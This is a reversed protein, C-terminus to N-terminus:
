GQLALLAERVKVMALTDMGCYDLLDRRLEAKRVPDGSAILELFALSAMQGQRIALAGYDLAPALVPLVRKISFSGHLDPHYYHSRVVDLLDVLRELLALLPEALEPLQAALERIVSGEFGSYVCISGEDGLTALMSLAFAERPDQGDEPLFESHTCAGERDEHHCSWQFPVRQFPRMGAYRPIAPAYTEFDLYHIPHSFAALAPALGESVWARDAQVCDRVRRQLTSLPLDRPLDLISTLDAALLAQRLTRTLRPLDSVPHEPEPHAGACHALFPCVQPETCHKGTAVAPPTPKALVGYLHDVLAEIEASLDAAAATRDHCRFLEALDLTRGNFVYETNLTLVGTQQVQLGSGRLVWAQVALDLVHEPRCAGAAKVEVLNWRGDGNWELIDARVQVGQFQFAAEFLGYAGAKILAETDAVAPGMRVSGHGILNGGPVRERALEGVEAGLRLMAETGPDPPTALEPRHIEDYLRLPCQWGHMIQTKSLM